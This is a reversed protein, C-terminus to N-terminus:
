EAAQSYTRRRLTLVEWPIIMVRVKKVHKYFLVAALLLCLLIFLFAKPDPVMATWTQREADEVRHGHSCSLDKCQIQTQYMLLLHETDDWVTSFLKPWSCGVEVFSFRPEFLFVHPLSTKTWPVAALKFLEVALVIVDADQFNPSLRKMSQLRELKINSGCTSLRM